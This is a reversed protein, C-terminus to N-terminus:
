YKALSPDIENVWALVGGKLNYLNSFGYKKELTEIARVSRVGSRCLVIVRKDSRLKELSNEITNLPILEGGLNVIEFEYPERV